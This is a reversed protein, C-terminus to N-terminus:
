APCDSARLGSKEAISPPTVSVIGIGKLNNGYSTPVSRPLHTVDDPWRVIHCAGVRHILSAAKSPMLSSAARGQVSMFEECRAGGDADRVLRSCVLLAVAFKRRVVIGRVRKTRAPFYQVNRMSYSTIPYGEPTSFAAKPFITLLEPAADIAVCFEILLKPLVV